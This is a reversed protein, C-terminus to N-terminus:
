PKLFSIGFTDIHAKLEPSAITEYHLIDFFYPLPLLQNLTASIKVVLNEPFHGKLAIDIDSGTKYNGMARSGFILADEIEPYKFLTDRILNLSSEKIGFM